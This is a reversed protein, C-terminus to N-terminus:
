ASGANDLSDLLAALRPSRERIYTRPVRRWDDCFATTAVIFKSLNRAMQDDLGDDALENALGKDIAELEHVYRQRWDVGDMKTICREITAHVGLANIMTIEM